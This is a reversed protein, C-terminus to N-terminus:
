LVSGGNGGASRPVRFPLETKLAAQSAPGRCWTSLGGEVQGWGWWIAEPPLTTPLPDLGVGPRSRHLLAGSTSQSSSLPVIFM